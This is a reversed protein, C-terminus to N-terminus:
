RATPHNTSSMTQKQDMGKSALLPLQLRLDRGPDVAHPLKEEAHLEGGLFGVEHVTVLHGHGGAQAAM